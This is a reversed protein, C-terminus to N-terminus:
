VTMDIDICKPKTTNISIKFVIYQSVLVIYLALYKCM